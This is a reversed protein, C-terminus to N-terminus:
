IGCEVSPITPLGLTELIAAMSTKSNATKVAEESAYPLFWRGELEARHKVAYEVGEDSNVCLILREDPHQAAIDHLLAIFSDEHGLTGRPVMMVDFISSDNIPGRRIESM